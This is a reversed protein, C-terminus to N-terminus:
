LHTVGDIRCSVYRADRDDNPTTLRLQKDQEDTARLRAEGVEASQSWGVVVVGDDTATKYDVEVATVPDDEVHVLDGGDVRAVLLDAPREQRTM